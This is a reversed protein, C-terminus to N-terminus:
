GEPLKAVVQGDEGLFELKPTGAATVALRLRVRGEADHLEVVAEKDQNKGAFLRTAGFLGAARAKKLAEQQEPGEPLGRVANVREVWTAGHLDSRDWVQLGAFRQGSRDHYHIGVTQDQEFQDFLIASGAEYGDDSAQGGFILGGCEDGQENFFIFGAQNGGQRQLTQGAVIPDAAREKNSITLRLTGDPEVLNIREVEIETFRPLTEESQAVRGTAAERLPRLRQELADLRGPAAGASQTSAGATPASRAAEREIEILEAVAAHLGDLQAWLSRLEDAAM